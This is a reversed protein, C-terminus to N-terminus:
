RQCLRRDTIADTVEIKDTFIRFGFFGAVIRDTGISVSRTLATLMSKPKFKNEIEFNQSRDNVYSDISLSHSFYNGGSFGADLHSVTGLGM